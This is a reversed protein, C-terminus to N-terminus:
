HTTKKVILNGIGQILSVILLLIIVTVYTVDSQFRQYGYRLAYDGLGGGGVAGAMTTFGVLSIFTITTARVMGPFSEKLYVRFIMGLPSIGMSQAAEILGKDLELLATEFQRSFFPVTGVILPFIAGKLGIATGVVFRTVDYLAAILIIFPIARFINVAKDFVHYVIQNQMIGGPRTVVLIVGFLVGFVLSISGAVGLMILTEGFAKVLQDQSRVVNPVITQLFEAM